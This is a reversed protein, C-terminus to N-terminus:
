QGDATDEQPDPITITTINAVRGGVRGTHTFEITDPAAPINISAVTGIRGGAYVISEFAFDDSISPIQLSTIASVAGGVRVEEEFSFEDAIEPICIKVVSGLQGGMRLTAPEKAEVTYQIGCLHSRLNKYYNALELVRPHRTPDVLVGSVDILLRFTYPDGDFEFWEEVNTKPYIARIATEVAFKTGLHKHVLFSDKLTQRKQEVSYGYDWWDVKFDYALVDLLEEPLADIRAYITAHDTDDIIAKLQKAMVTAFAHFSKDEQLVRPLLRLLDAHRIDNM